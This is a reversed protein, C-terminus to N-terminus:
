LTVKFSNKKHHRPRIDDPQTGADHRYTKTDANDGFEESFKCPSTPLREVQPTTMEVPSSHHTAPSFSMRSFAWQGCTQFVCICIIPFTKRSGSGTSIDEYNVVEPAMFEPTGALNQVQHHTKQCGEVSYHQTVRNGPSLLLATGFDVIKVTTGEKETCM